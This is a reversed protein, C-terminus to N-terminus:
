KYQEDLRDTPVYCRGGVIVAGSNTHRAVRDGARGEAWRNGGIRVLDSFDGDNGRGAAELAGAIHGVTIPGTEFGNAEGIVTDPRETMPRTRISYGQDDNTM